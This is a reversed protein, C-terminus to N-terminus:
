RIFVPREANFANVSGFIGGFAVTMVIFFVVGKLNQDYTEFTAGKKEYLIITIVAFFVAQVIKAIMDMPNRFQNLFSRHMILCM